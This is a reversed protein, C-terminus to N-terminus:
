SNIKRQKVIVWLHLKGLEDVVQLSNGADLDVFLERLMQCFEEPFFFLLTLTLEPIIRISNFRYTARINFNEFSVDTSLICGFILPPPM